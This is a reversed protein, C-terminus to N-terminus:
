HHDRRWKLCCVALKLFTQGDRIYRPLLRIPDQFARWLWELGCRQLIQPARSYEGSLIDFSGGVGIFILGRPPLVRELARYLFEQKPSGLALLIIDPSLEVIKNALNELGNLPIGSASFLDDDLHTNLYNRDYEAYKEIVKNFVKENSGLILVLRSSKMITDVLDVGATRVCVKRFFM